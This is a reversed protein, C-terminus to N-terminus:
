VRARLLAGWDMLIEEVMLQKNPNAGSLMLRKSHLLKELYRQLLTDPVVKLQKLLLRDLVEIEAVSVGSKWIAVSHLWGILWNFLLTMDKNHWNTAISLADKKGLSLLTMDSLWGQKLELEAGDLLGLASLPAGRAMRLLTDPKYETGSMLPALWALSEAQPPPTMLKIQCRSRITPLVSSPSDTVLILLTRDAPEELTKLLANASNNNMSEAPAAIVVKYQSIQATKNLKETAARVADVKIAKGPEDPFLATFDPHTEARNLECSKCHGCAVHSVPAQCLLWQMLGYALHLKGLGQPGAFMLAHPLRGDEQQKIFGQWLSQQWPYPLAPFNRM